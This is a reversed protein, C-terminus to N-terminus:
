GPPTRRAMQLHALLWRGDHRVWVRTAAAQIVFSPLGPVLDVDLQQICSVTVMEGFDQVTPTFTQVRIPRPRPAAIFEDVTQILGVGGHVAIFQSHLLARLDGTDASMLAAAWASEAEDITSLIPASM